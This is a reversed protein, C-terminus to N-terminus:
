KGFTPLKVDYADALVLANIILAIGVIIWGIGQFMMMQKLMKLWNQLHGMAIQKFSTDDENVMTTVGDIGEWVVVDVVHVKPIERKIEQLLTKGNGDKVEELVTEFEGSGVTRTIQGLQYGVCVMRDEDVTYFSGGNEALSGDLIITGREEVRLKGDPPRPHIELRSTKNRRSKFLILVDDPSLSIKGKRAKALGVMPLLANASANQQIKVTKPKSMVAKPQSM